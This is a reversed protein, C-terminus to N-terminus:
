TIYNFIGINVQIGGNRVSWIVGDEALDQNYGIVVGVMDPFEGNEPLDHGGPLMGARNGRREAPIQLGQAIEERSKLSKYDRLSIM